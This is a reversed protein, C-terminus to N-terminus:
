RVPPQHRSIAGHRFDYLPEIGCSNKNAPSVALWYREHFARGSRDAPNPMTSYFAELAERHMAARDAAQQRAYEGGNSDATGSDARIIKRLIAPM